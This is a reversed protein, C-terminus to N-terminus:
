LHYPSFIHYSSNLYLFIWTRDFYYMGTITLKYVVVSSIQSETELRYRPAATSHSDISSGSGLQYRNMGQRIYWNVEGHGLINKNVTCLFAVTSNQVVKGGNNSPIMTVSIALEQCVSGTTLLILVVTVFYTIICKLILVSKFTYVM